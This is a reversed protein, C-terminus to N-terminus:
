EVCPRELAVTAGSCGTPDPSPTLQNLNCTSKERQESADQVCFESLKIELLVQLLMLLEFYCLNKFFLIEKFTSFSALHLSEHRYDWCNPLGLCSSQNLGPTSSWSTTGAVQSGLVLPDGSGPLGLSCYAMVSGSCELRPSLTLGWRKTAVCRSNLSEGHQKMGTIGVSQSAAAPPDSSGLLKLHAQAVYHSGTESALGEFKSEGAELFGNDWCKPLSLCTSCSALLELGAQGVHHFGDRSFSCFNALYPPAHRYDWSSLLSLCTFRKFGPPSSQPSGLDRWQVEAQAFLAFSNQSVLAPHNRSALLEFGVQAVYRSEQRDERRGAATDEEMSTNREVDLQKHTQRQFGNFM